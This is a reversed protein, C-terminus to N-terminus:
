AAAEEEALETVGLPTIRYKPPKIQDLKTVWGKKMLRNLVAAGKLWAERGYYIKKYKMETESCLLGKSKTEGFYLIAFTRAPILPKNRLITLARRENATLCM